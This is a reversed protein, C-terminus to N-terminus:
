CVVDHSDLNGIVWGGGHFFVLCPAMGDTRRLAKPTYVRAPIAGGPGPIAIETVSALEPPEPNTVLRGKLYLERAEAPSVTEYPPRGAEQFAKYVAAADPDLVVPM